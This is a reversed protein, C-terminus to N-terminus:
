PPALADRGPGALWAAYAPTGTVAARHAETALEVLEVARDTIPGHHRWALLHRLWLPPGALPLVVMGPGARLTAQCPAIARGEEVLTHIMDREVMTHRVRPIFGAEQCASYFYEPWGAGDPPTVVWAEDALEALSVEDKGALRHGAPIAVFVPEVAILCTRIEPSGPLERGPYEILTAVDLRRSLLLDLLLRPSYETRVTIQTGPMEFLRSLMGTFLPTVCGGIRVQSGVEVPAGSCMENVTVLASRARSLVFAGFPTPAIGLRDRLFVRGGLAEEIRRLQASLAPQSVGIKAAARRISGAEAIACLVRLHRLELQM